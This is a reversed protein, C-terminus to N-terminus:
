NFDETEIIGKKNKYENVTDISKTREKNKNTIRNNININIM